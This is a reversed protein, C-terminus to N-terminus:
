LGEDVEGQCTYLLVRARMDVVETGVFGRRELPQGRAVGGAPRLEVLQQAAPAEHVQM